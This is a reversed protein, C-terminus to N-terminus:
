ADGVGYLALLRKMRAVALDPDALLGAADALRFVECFYPLPRMSQAGGLLIFHDQFGNLWSLFVVGTKYHQTPVRFITRSLAVTPALLRDYTAVDGAAFATLAASAAPAIPDLIGLLAHSYGQADGKILEAFNFDDGTYMKVSGLLRRMRIEKEADLLSIKIGDVKAKSTEIVALATEM